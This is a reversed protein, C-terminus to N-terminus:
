KAFFQIDVSLDEPSTFSYLIDAFLKESKTKKKTKKKKQNQFVYQQAGWIQNEYIKIQNWKPQAQPQSGKQRAGGHAFLFIERPAGGTINTLFCSRENNIDCRVGVAIIETLLKSNYNPGTWTTLPEWNVCGPANEPHNVTSVTFLLRPLIPSAHVTSLSYFCLTHLPVFAAGTVCVVVQVLSRCWDRQGCAIIGTEDPVNM